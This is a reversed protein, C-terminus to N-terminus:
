TLNLAIKLAYRHVNDVTRYKDDNRQLVSSSLALKDLEAAAGKAVTPLFREDCTPYVYRVLDLSSAPKSFACIAKLIDKQSESLDACLDIASKMQSQFRERFCDNLLGVGVDTVQQRVARNYLDSAIGTMERPKREAIEGLRLSVEASFRIANGFLRKEFYSRVEEDTKFPGMAMGTTFLAAAGYDGEDAVRKELESRGQEVAGKADSDLRWALVILFSKVTNLANKLASLTARHIRQGEDLCVVVGSRGAGRVHEALVGFDHRVDATILKQEQRRQPVRFRVSQANANWDGLLIDSSPNGPMSTQTQLAGIIERLITDAQDYAEVTDDLELFVGICKETNAIGALKHLYYTKGTGHLGAVLIHNQRGAKLGHLNEQFIRIEDERGVFYEDVVQEGFPNARILSSAPDPM